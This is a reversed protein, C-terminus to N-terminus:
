VMRQKTFRSWDRFNMIEHAALLQQRLKMKATVEVPRQLVLM